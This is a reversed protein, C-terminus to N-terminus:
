DNFGTIVLTCSKNFPAGNKWTPHQLNLFYTGGGPTFIGGTTESGEPGICFRQLDSLQPNEITLDLFYIENYFAKRKTAAPTTRGKDHWNIDENLVLFPRGHLVAITNCDPNSFVKSSDTPDVGGELLVSMKDTDLDLVLVRGHVDVYHLSDTEFDKFYNAPVGGMAVKREWDWSDNGTETIYLKNEHRAIWEHRQFLSAGMKTAVDRIRLLSITDRPLTLWSGSEGDLSQKYAYLQGASYDGAVDAVFKFFVASPYDDTMYVTKDDPMCEADEHMFRGMAFLKQTGKKLVPDIEVMFGFNEYFDLGNLSDLKQHGAGKRYLDANKFPYTEEATLITGHPTATGGCNRDTGGLESFDVHQFDGIVEWGNEGKKVEMLTGGGGDGLNPDKKRTEHGVYLWGHESSGDIPLYVCMDHSGKAPFSMSDARVVDDRGETFLIKYSYGEPLLLTKNNFSTDIAEFFPEFPIEVVEPVTDAQPVDAIENSSTPEPDSCSALLFLGALFYSTKM